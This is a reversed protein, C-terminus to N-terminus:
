GYWLNSVVQEGLREITRLPHHAVLSSAAEKPVSPPDDRYTGTSVGPAQALWRCLRDFRGQVVRNVRRRDRSLLEFSHSVVTFAEQGVDRAHEIAARLERFSLATIQAHRRSGRPGGISGVPVEIVGHRALPEHRDAPWDIRCDGDDLGPCASSDYRLGLTALARLTDDNAGYNGARFAIPAPAGAAMLLDRATSLIAIQRDLSFDRMNRGSWGAFPGDTLFALWETHAHLQVDHGAALIPGVVADVAAQGWLLGPLPDVFFVGKLGCADLQAIQYGVGVAQRDAAGEISLRHNSRRDVARGHVFLGASYETDVTLFVSLM